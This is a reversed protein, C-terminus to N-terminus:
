INLESSVFLFPRYALDPCTSSGRPEWLAFSSCFLARFVQWSSSYSRRYLRKTVVKLFPWWVRWHYWWQCSCLHSTWYLFNKKTPSKWAEGAGAKYKSRWRQRERYTAGTRWRPTYFIRGALPFLSHLLWHYPWELLLHFKSCLQTCWYIWPILVFDGIVSEM